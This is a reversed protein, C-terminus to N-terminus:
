TQLECTGTVKDVFVLVSGPIFSKNLSHIFSRISSNKLTEIGFINYPSNLNFFVSSYWKDNSHKFFEMIKLHPKDTMWDFLVYKPAGM